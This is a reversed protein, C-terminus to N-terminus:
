RALVVTGRCLVKGNSTITYIYLGPRAPNGDSDIGDWFADGSEPFANVVEIERVHRAKADYINLTSPDIDMKPYIFRVVPNYEDGNPTFVDPETECGFTGPILFLLTTDEAVNNGCYGATDMLNVIEVYLSGFVAPIPLNLINDVVNYPTPELIGNIYIILSDYNVASFNDTLEIQIADTGDAIVTSEPSIVVLSPPLLDFFFSWELPEEISNGLIDEAEIVRVTVTDGHEVEPLPVLATDGAYDLETGSYVNTGISIVVSEWNVGEDDTILVRIYGDRCSSIGGADVPLIEPPVAGLIQVPFTDSVNMSIDTIREFDHDGDWAVGCFVASDGWNFPGITASFTDGAVPLMLASISLPTIEGAVDFFVRASDVGSADTCIFRIELTNGDVVAYPLDIPWIEPGTTDDDIVPFSFSASDSNPGCYAARDTFHTTVRITDLEHFFLLSDDAGSYWTDVSNLLAPSLFFSDGRFETYGYVSDMFSTTIAFYMSDVGSLDDAIIATMEALPNDTMPPAFGVLTPPLTDTLLYIVLNNRMDNLLMDRGFPLLPISDGPPLPISGIFFLTDGRLELEPPADVVLLTEGHVVVGLSDYFLGDEDEFVIAAYGGRCSTYLDDEPYVQTALPGTDGFYITFCTDLVNPDCTDPSDFAHLCLRLSDGEHYSIMTSEAYFCLESVDFLLEPTALHIERSDNVTIWIGTSDIGSMDDFLGICIVPFTDSIITGPEPVVFVVEPPMIDIFWVLTDVFLLEHHLSDPAAQVSFRVTDGHELGAAPIFSFISDDHTVDDVGYITENFDFFLSDWLIGDPDSLRTVVPLDPCSIYSSDAPSLYTVIPGDANVMFSFCYEEMTNPSCFEPMDVADFVCFSLSDGTGFILGAASADWILTDGAFSWGPLVLPDGSGTPGTVRISGMDVGSVADSVLIRVIPEIRGIIEGDLPIHHAIFPPATDYAILYEGTSTSNGLTDSVYTLVFRMTDGDAYPIAPVFRM